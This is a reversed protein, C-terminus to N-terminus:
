GRQPRLRGIPKAWLRARGEGSHQRRREHRAEGGTGREGSQERRVLAASATESLARARASCGPLPLLRGRLDANGRRVGEDDARLIGCVNKGLAGSRRRLLADRDALHGEGGRVRAARREDPRAHLNGRDAPAPSLAATRLRAARLPAAEHAAGRGLSVRVAVAGHRAADHSARGRSLHLLRRSRISRRAQAPERLVRRAHGRRSRRSRVCRFLSVNLGECGCLPVCGLSTMGPDSAPTWRRAPRKGAERPVRCRGGGCHEAIEGRTEGSPADSCLVILHLAEPNERFRRVASPPPFTTRIPNACQRASAIQPEAHLSRAPASARRRM